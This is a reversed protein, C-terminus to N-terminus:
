SWWERMVRQAVHAISCISRRAHPQLLVCRQAAFRGSVPCADTRTEVTRRVADGRTCPWYVEKVGGVLYCLTGVQMTHHIAQSM